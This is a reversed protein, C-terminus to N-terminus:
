QNQLCVFAANLSGRTLAAFPLADGFCVPYTLQNRTEDAFWNSLIAGDRKGGQAAFFM